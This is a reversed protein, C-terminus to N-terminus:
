SSTATLSGSVGTEPQPMARPLVLLPCRCNRALQQSTSGHMLRGLPGYSRSGIVLLDLSDSYLGLEEAPRGYAVHPEVDDHAAIEARAEALMNELVADEDPTSGVFLYRPLWVAQFASLRSRREGALSRARTLAHKSEPSGDYGVGINKLVGARQSYGAPAIAIACPTGNLAARTDDGVLARGLLARRSSGVVLLDPHIEEALEHLGRGVSPASPWRLRAEIGAKDRVRDLLARAQEGREWNYPRRSGRWM